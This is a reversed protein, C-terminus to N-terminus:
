PDSQANGAASARATDRDLVQKVTELLVERRYPKSLYANFGAELARQRDIEAHATVAVCPINSTRNDVKLEQFVEWGDLRPMSIDIIILDPQRERAMQLCEQGDRAEQVDYLADGLMFCLLERNDDHDDAILIRSTMVLQCGRPTANLCKYGLTKWHTLRSQFIM